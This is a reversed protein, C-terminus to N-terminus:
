NSGSQAESLQVECDIRVEEGVMLSGAETIVNWKLNFDKRNIRGTIIFGAKNKGSPDKVVGTFEVDLEVKKTIDRITMAGTLKYHGNDDLKQYGTAVFKLEPFNKVDFFDISKIHRDRDPNGTSVSPTDATFSVKATMFDNGETEISADYSSFGGTITTIMLHKVKFHVQSNEKDILWKKKAM